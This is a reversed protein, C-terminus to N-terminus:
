KRSCRNNKKCVIRYSARNLWWSSVKSTALLSTPSSTFATLVLCMTTVRSWFALRLRLIFFSIIEKSVTFCNL